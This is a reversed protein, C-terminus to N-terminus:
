SFSFRFVTVSLFMSSIGFLGRGDEGAEVICDTDRMEAFENCVDLVKRGMAPYEM